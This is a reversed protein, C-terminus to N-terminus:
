WSDISTVHLTADHLSSSLISFLGLSRGEFSGIELYRSPKCSAIFSALASLQEPYTKSNATLEIIRSADSNSFMQNIKSRM